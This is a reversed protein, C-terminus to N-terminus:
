YQMPKRIIPLVIAVVPMAFEHRAAPTCVFNFNEAACDPLAALDVSGLQDCPFCLARGQNYLSQFRLEYTM